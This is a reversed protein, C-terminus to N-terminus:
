ITFLSIKHNKHILLELLEIKIKRKGGLFNNKILFSIQNGAAWMLKEDADITSYTHACLKLPFDPVTHVCITYHLFLQRGCHKKSDATSTIFILRLVYHYGGV